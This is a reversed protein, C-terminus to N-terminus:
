RRTSTSKSRRTVSTLSACPDCAKYLRYGLGFDNALFTVDNAQTAISVSSFGHAYWRERNFIYGLYPQLIVSHSGTISPSGAFVQPGTPFTVSVGGSLLSGTCHSQWFAYKTILSLDGFATDMSRLTSVDSNVDLQNVPM